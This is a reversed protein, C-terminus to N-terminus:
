ATKAAAAGDHIQMARTLSERGIIGVIRGDDLVPMQSVNEKLLREFVGLAPEEPTAWHIEAIPHMVAQISTNAWEDRPVRQVAHLTVLGVPRDLGTVIHFRKGTQLVQHAYEELSIDRPVTPVERSMVEDARMGALANRVTSRLYTEQAASLLFWGIFALWIGGLFNGHFADWVGYLIMLYAFFKGSLTAIRTARAFNGTIGWAIGRLIRGGDLPFGPVLNFVALIFNIESLWLAAATVMEGGPVYRWILWFAGALFFSSLPGAIAINFEKWASDPDGKIQSVGGFVFLTISEVQIKYHRAVMSHSLEHFVVSGFFLCSTAIGVIWHQAATWHPHLQSFQTTVTLTILAFIVFWSSHVYIPIGLVRGLRVGSRDPNRAARSTVPEPM